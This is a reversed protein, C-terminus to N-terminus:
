RTEETLGPASLVTGVRILDPDTGIVTRNAHWWAPWRVAVRAPTPPHGTAALDAAALGWLTDGAVVTHTRPAVPAVTAPRRRLPAVTTPRSGPTARRLSDLSPREVVRPPATVACTVTTRDLSPLGGPACGAAVAHTPVLTPSLAIGLAAGGGVARRVVAPTVLRAVVAAAHGAAGPLLATVTTLSALILWGVLLWATLAALHVVALDPDGGPRVDARLGGLLATLPALHALAVGAALPAALALRARM